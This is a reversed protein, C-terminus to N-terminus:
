RTPSTPGRGALEACVTILQDMSQTQPDVRTVDEFSRLWTLQRKALQRTAELTKQAFAEVSEFGPSRSLHAWAQRYGVARMSPHEATLGPRGKLMRVENLFGNAMMAELRQAIRAHLWSRDEPLLALTQLPGLPPLGQGEAQSKAIWQSLSQGTEELVELARAIRQADQPSLRAATEPDREALQAHLAPWGQRRAAQAIRERTEDSCRPLADIGDRMAKFYLMTGGVLVPTHGRQHIDAVAQRAAELHDAVSHADEPACCDILHHPVEAREQASPKATGIDMGTYVLASDISVIEVTGLRGSRALAMALSSKGSATPGLICLLPTM